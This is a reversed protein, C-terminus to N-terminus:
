SPDCCAGRSRPRCFTRGRNTATLTELKGLLATQLKGDSIMTMEVASFIRSTCTSVEVLRKFLEKTFSGKHLEGIHVDELLCFDIIADDTMGGYVPVMDQYKAHRVCNESIGGLLREMLQSARMACGTINLSTPSFHVLVEHFQTPALVAFNGKFFGLWDTVVPTQLVLAALDPTFVLGLCM